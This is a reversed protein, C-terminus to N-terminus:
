AWIDPLPLAMNPMKLARGVSKCFCKGLANMKVQLHQDFFSSSKNYLEKYSFLPYTCEICM